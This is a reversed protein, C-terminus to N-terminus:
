LGQVCIIDLVLSKQLTKKFDPAAPAATEYFKNSNV